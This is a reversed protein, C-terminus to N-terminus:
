DEIQSAQGETSHEVSNQKTTDSQVDFIEGPKEKVPIDQQQFVVPYVVFTNQTTTKIIPEMFEQLENEEIIRDLVSNQESNEPLSRGQERETDKSQSERVLQLVASSTLVNRSQDGDTSETDFDTYYYEEEQKMKDLLDKYYEYYYEEYDSQSNGLYDYYDGVSGAGTGTM